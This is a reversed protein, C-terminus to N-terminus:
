DKGIGRQAAGPPCTVNIRKERLAIVENTLELVKDWDERNVYYSILQKKSEMESKLRVVELKYKM